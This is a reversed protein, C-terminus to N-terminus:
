QDIVPTKFENKRRKKTPPGDTPAYIVTNSTQSTNEIQESKETKKGILIKPKANPKNEIDKLESFPRKVAQVRRPPKFPM